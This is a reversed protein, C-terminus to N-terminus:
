AAGGAALAPEEDADHELPDITPVVPRGRKGGPWLSVLAGMAIILGGVWIWMVFPEVLVRLTASSGDQEFAMLNVYLDGYARSRVAPTAVPQDSVRYYNMRPDLMGVRKGGREVYLDAGVVTRQPEERGWMEKLRVTYGGLSVAGGPKITAEKEM